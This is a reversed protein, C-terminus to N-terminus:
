GLKVKLFINDRSQAYYLMPEAVPPWAKAKNTNELLSFLLKNQKRRIDTDVKKMIIETDIRTTPYYEDVLYNSAKLFFKQMLIELCESSFRHKGESHLQKVRELAAEDSMLPQLEAACDVFPQASALALVCLLVHRLVKM